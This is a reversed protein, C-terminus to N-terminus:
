RIAEVILKLLGSDNEEQNEWQGPSQAVVLDLNPCVWIHQRGAGSAAFADRPLNPWLQAHDNTWFAYGYQWQEKPCNEVIM